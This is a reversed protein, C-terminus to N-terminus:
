NGPPLTTVSGALLATAIQSRGRHLRSMITGEKVGLARAAERYSLGVVDVAVVAERLPESLARLAEYVAGGDVVRAVVPDEGGLALELREGDLPEAAMRRVRRSSIWTNRLVRMLYALDRDRRIFRPWRLVREFTDQVLDEADQRSGCLGYAARYLRGVHDGLREPELRGRRPAGAGEGAPHGARAPEGEPESAVHRLSASPLVLLPGSGILVCAM